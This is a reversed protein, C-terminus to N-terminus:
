ESEVERLHGEFQLAAAYVEDMTAQMEECSKQAQVIILDDPCFSVWLVTLWANEGGQLTVSIKDGCRPLYLQDVQTHNTGNESPWQILFKV